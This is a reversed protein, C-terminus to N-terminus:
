RQTRTTKPRIDAAKKLDGDNECARLLLAWLRAEYSPPFEFSHVLAEIYDELFRVAQSTQGSKNTLEVYRRILGFSKHGRYEPHELLQEMERRAKKLNGSDIIQEIKQLELSYTLDDEGEGVVGALKQMVQGAEEMRGAKLMTKGIEEASEALIYPYKRFVDKQEAYQEMLGDYDNQRTLITRELDWARLYRRVLNRAERACKLASTPDRDLLVEAITLNVAAQDAKESQLSRECTYEVDHDTMQKRTQPHIAYGTTYSGGYRGIDLQWEGPREMFAFWAHNASNGAGSFYISPIGFARATLVSYYAQDVCIGGRRRIAALTYTGQDWIYRSSDLREHSYVISRYKEGWEVLKGDASERAWELESLPVPTQVVFVLERVSLEEYDIKSTGTSYLEKFYDYRWVPDPNYPLLDKGMQRHMRPRKPNDLVVALAMVLDYFEDCGDPDHVYLKELVQVVGSPNDAPTLTGVLVHLREDSGLIWQALEPSVPCDRSLELFGVCEAAVALQDLERSPVRSVRSVRQSIYGSLKEVGEEQRAELVYDLTAKRIQESSPAGSVIHVLLFVEWVM